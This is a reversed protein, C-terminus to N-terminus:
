ANDEVGHIATALYKDLYLILVAPTAAVEPTIITKMSKLGSHLTVEIGEDTRNLYYGDAKRKM